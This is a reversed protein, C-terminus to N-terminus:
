GKMCGPFRDDVETKFQDPSMWKGLIGKVGKGVHPVSAYKDVTILFTKGEVRAVDAPDTRCIYSCPCNLNITKLEPM